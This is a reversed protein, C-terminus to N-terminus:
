ASAAMASRHAGDVDHRRFLAPQGACPPLRTRRRCSSAPRDAGMGRGDFWDTRGLSGGFPLRSDFGSEATLRQGRASITNTALSESFLRAERYKEVIVTESLRIEDPTRNYINQLRILE